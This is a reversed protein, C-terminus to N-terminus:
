AVFREATTPSWAGAPVSVSRRFARRALSPLAALSGEPAHDFLRSSPGADGFHAGDHVLHDALVGVGEGSKLRAELDGNLGVNSGARARRCGRARARRRHHGPPGTVPSSWRGHTPCRCADSPNASRISISLANALQPASEPGLRGACSSRRCLPSRRRDFSGGTGREWMRRAGGIVAAIGARWARPSSTRGTGARRNDQGLTLPLRPGFSVPAVQAVERTM